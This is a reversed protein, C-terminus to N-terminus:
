EAVPNSGPWRMTLVMFAPGNMAPAVGTPPPATAKGTKVLTRPISAGTARVKLMMIWLTHILMALRKMMVRPIATDHRAM